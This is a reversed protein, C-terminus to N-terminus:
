RGELLGRAPKEALPRGLRDGRAGPYAAESAPRLDVALERTSPEGAMDREPDTPGDEVSPPKLLGQAPRLRAGGGRLRAESPSSKSLSCAARPRM